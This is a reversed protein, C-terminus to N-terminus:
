LVCFFMVSFLCFIWCSPSDAGGSGAAISKPCFVLEMCVSITSLNFCDQKMVAPHKLNLKYEPACLIIDPGKLSFLSCRYIYFCLNVEQRFGM